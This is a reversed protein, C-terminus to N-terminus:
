SQVRPPVWLGGAQPLHGEEWKSSRDGWLTWGGRGAKSLESEEWNKNTQPMRPSGESPPIPLPSTLVNHTHTNTCTCWTHTTVPIQVSAIIKRWVSCKPYSDSPLTFGSHFRHRCHHFGILTLDMEGWELLSSHARGSSKGTLFELSAWPTVTPPCFQVGDETNLGLWHISQTMRSPMGVSKRCLRFNMWICRWFLCAGGLGGKSQAFNPSRQNYQEGGNTTWLQVSSLSCGTCFILFVSIRFFTHFSGHFLDLGFFFVGKLYKLM